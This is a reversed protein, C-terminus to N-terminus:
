EIVRCGGSISGIENEFRNSVFSQYHQSENEDPNFITIHAESYVGGGYAYFFTLGGDWKAKGFDGVTEGLGTSEEAYITVEEAHEDSTITLTWPFDVFGSDVVIEYDPAESRLTVGKTFVCEIVKANILRQYSEETPPLIESTSACGLFLFTFMILCVAKKM